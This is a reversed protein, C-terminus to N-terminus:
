QLKWMKIYNYTLNPATGAFIATIDIILQDDTTSSSSFTFPFSIEYTYGASMTTNVFYDNGHTGFSENVITIKFASIVTDDECDFSTFMEGVYIGTPYAKNIIRQTEGSVLNGTFLDNGEQIQLGLKLSTSFNTNSGTAISM